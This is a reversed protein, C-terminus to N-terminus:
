FYYGQKFKTKIKKPEFLSKTKKAHIFPIGSLRGSEIYFYYMCDVVDEYPHVEHISDYDVRGQRNVKYSYGGSLASHLTPCGVDGAVYVNFAAKGKLLKSLEIQVATKCNSKKTSPNYHKIQEFAPYIGLANLYAVDTKVVRHHKQTGAPDCIDNIVNNGCLMKTDFMAKNIQLDISSMGEVVETIVREHFFHVKDEDDIQVYLVCNTSGFDWIRYVPLHKKVEYPYPHLHLNPDYEKFVQASSATAYSIDLERAITDASSFQKEKKYWEVDKAPHLVWHLRYRKMGQAESGDKGVNEIIGEFDEYQIGAEILGKEQALQDVHPYKILRKALNVRVRNYDNDEGNPTSVVARSHASQRCSSFSKEGSDWFAMEDLFVVKYRGARGFNETSTEGKIISANDKNTFKGEKRDYNPQMWLPLKDLMYHIRGMHTNPDIGGTDVYDLKYSGLLCTFNDHFMFFWLCIAAMLWSIGMERSKEVLFDEGDIINQVWEIVAWEQFKYLVFPCDDIGNPNRPFNTFCFNNIFFVPDNACLGLVTKQAVEDNQLRLLLLARKKIHENLSRATHENTSECLYDIFQNEENAM